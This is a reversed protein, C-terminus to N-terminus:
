LLVFDGAQEREMLLGINYLKKDLGEIVFEEPIQDNLFIQEIRDLVVTEVSMKKKIIRACCDKLALTFSEQLVNLEKESFESWVQENDSNSKLKQYLEVVETSEKGDLFGFIFNTAMKSKHANTLAQDSFDAGNIHSQELLFILQLTGHNRKVVTLLDKGQTQALAKGDMLMHLDQCNFISNDQKFNFDFSSDLIPEFYAKIAQRNQDIFAVRDLGEVATTLSKLLSQAFAEAIALGAFKPNNSAYAVSHM